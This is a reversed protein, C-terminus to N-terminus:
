TAPGRLGSEGRLAKYVAEALSLRPRWHLQARIRSADVLFSETLREGVARRGVAATAWGLLRPPCRFERVPRDLVVGILRALAGPSPAEPDAVHYLASSTPVTDLALVIADALNWVAIASRANRTSALPLPIGSAVWRVLRGFNGRDNPGIVMPARLITCRLPGRAAIDILTREAALKSRAYSSRPDAPASEGLPQASSSGLVGVTSLFILREVGAAAAAQALRATGEANVTRHTVEATARSERHAHVHGALHVVARVGELAASWDTRPGIESVAVEEPGSPGRRVAGRPQWGAAALAPLCAQGVMGTAGTVLVLPKTM